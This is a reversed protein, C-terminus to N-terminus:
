GGQSRLYLAYEVQGNDAFLTAATYGNPMAYSPDAGWQLLVDAVETHGGYAASIIPTFTEDGDTAERNVDAGAELLVNIADIHGGYAANTLPTFGGTGDPSAGGDLLAKVIAAHGEAAAQNVTSFGLEPYELTAGADILLQVMALDNRTIAITLSNNQGFIADVDAGADIALLALAGDGSRVADFLQEDLPRDDLASGSVTGSPSTSPLVESSSSSCGVLVLAILAGVLSVVATPLVSM